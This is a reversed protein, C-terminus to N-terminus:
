RWRVVDFRQRGPEADVERVIITEWRGDGDFDAAFANVIHQGPTPELAVRADSEREGTLSSNRADLLQAVIKLIREVDFVTDDNEFLLERLRAEAARNEDDVSKPSLWVEVASEDETVLALDRRGDGDFDGVTSWRLKSIVELFREILNTSDGLLRLLSPVRLILTRNWTASRAFTGDEETRYGLVHIPVDISSVLGLVLQVGTPIELKFVLLDDRVDDDLRMLFMGSVDEAVLRTDAKTFQPGDSSSLFSWVKRRHAIVYDPIGDANLDGSQMHQDDDFVLTQGLEVGAKPTTDRFHELDVEIPRPAFRGDSGQLFFRRKKGEISRLDLRGDGNVDEVDLAPIRLENSWQAALDNPRSEIRHTISLPVTQALEFHPGTGNTEAGDVQLWIEFARDIPLVLDPRGDGNLDRTLETFAPQGIRVRLGNPGALPKPPGVFARDDGLVFWRTGRDDMTVLESRGDGDLDAIALLTRSPRDLLTAAAAPTVKPNDATSSYIRFEGAVSVVCLETRGDGDLDVPHYTAVRAAPRITDGLVGRLPDTQASAATALAVIFLTSARKM